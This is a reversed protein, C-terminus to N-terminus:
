IGDFLQGPPTKLAKAIRVINNFRADRKGLEIHSIATPHMEAAHALDEQTMDLQERKDRVNQGFRHAPSV